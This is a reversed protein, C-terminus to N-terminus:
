STLLSIAPNSSPSVEYINIYVENKSIVFLHNSSPKYFLSPVNHTPPRVSFPVPQSKGMWVFNPTLVNYGTQIVLVHIFTQDFLQTLVMVLNQSSDYTMDIIIYPFLSYTLQASFNHLETDYRATFLYVDYFSFCLHCVYEGDGLKAVFLTYNTCEM